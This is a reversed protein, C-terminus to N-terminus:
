VGGVMFGLLFFCVGVGGVVFASSGLGQVVLFSQVRSLGEFRFNGVGLDM